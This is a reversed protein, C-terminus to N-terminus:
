KASKTVTIAARIVSGIGPGTTPSRPMVAAAASRRTAGVGSSEMRHASDPNELPVTHNIKTANM